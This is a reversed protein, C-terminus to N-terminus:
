LRVLEFGAWFMLQFEPPVNMVGVVMTGGRRARKPAFNSQYFRKSPSLSAAGEETRQNQFGTDFTRGDGAARRRVALFVDRRPSTMTAMPSTATSPM